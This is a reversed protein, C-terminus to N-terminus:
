SHFEIDRGNARQICGVTLLRTGEADRCILTFEIWGIPDSYYNKGEQEVVRPNLFIDCHHYHWMTARSVAANLVKQDEATQLVEANHITITTM